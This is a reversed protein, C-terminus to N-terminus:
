PLTHLKYIWIGFIIIAKLSIEGFLCVFKGQVFHIGNTSDSNSHLVFSLITPM